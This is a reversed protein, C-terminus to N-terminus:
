VTILIMGLQHAIIRFGTHLFRQYIFFLVVFIYILRREMIYLSYCFVEWNLHISKVTKFFLIHDKQILKM